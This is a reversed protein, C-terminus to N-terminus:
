RIDFCGRGGSIHLVDGIVMNGLDSVLLKAYVSIESPMAYRGVVNETTYISDGEKVGLLDTATPGPAIGNVVIGYPIMIKALGKVMGDSGWKSIGYPSWAPESGRSSSIILIHGKINNIRMYKGFAQCLFYSAKLNLNLIRDYEDTTMNWFNVNQTHSGASSVFIDIKGFLASADSVIQELNSLDTLNLVFDKINARYSEELESILTFMKKKNTGAIIVKCGCELLTKAIAFGIGGSGGSIFAVKNKLLNRDEILQPIAIIEKRRRFAIVRKIINKLIM